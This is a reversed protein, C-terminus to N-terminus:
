ENGLKKGWNIYGYVSNVLYASWMVLMIAGDDTGAVARLVWMVVSLANVAIYMIWMQRFRLLMCISAAITIVNTAADLYPTAAGPIYSLGFGAIWILAGVLVCLLVSHLPKLTRVKVTGTDSVMKKSWLVWGIITTVMYFGWNLIVEGYLNARLSLWGYAFCNFIGIPYNLVNAKATLVVCLIGSLMTLFGFLTDKILVTVVAGVVIFLFLWIIEFRTWTLLFKKFKAM